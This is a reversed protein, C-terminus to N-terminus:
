ASRVCANELEKNFREQAAQLMDAAERLCRAASFWAGDDIYVAAINVKEIIQDRPNKRKSPM